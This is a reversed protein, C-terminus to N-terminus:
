RALFPLPLAAISVDNSQRFHSVESQLPLSSECFRQHPIAFHMCSGVPLTELKSDM